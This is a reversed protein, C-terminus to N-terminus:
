LLVLRGSHYSSIYDVNNPNFSHNKRKLSEEIYKDFEVQMNGTSYNRELEFFYMFVDKELETANVAKLNKKMEFYAEDVTFSSKGVVARYDEITFFSQVLMNKPKQSYYLM